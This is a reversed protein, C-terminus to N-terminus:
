DSYILHCPEIAIKLLLSYVLDVPQESLDCLYTCQLKVTQIITLTHSLEWWAHIELSANIYGVGCSYGQLNPQLHAELGYSLVFKSM